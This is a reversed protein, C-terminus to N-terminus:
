GEIRSKGDRRVYLGHSRLDRILSPPGRFENLLRVAIAKRHAAVPKRDLRTIRLYFFDYALQADSLPISVQWRRFPLYSAVLSKTDVDIRQPTLSWGVFLFPVFVLLFQAQGTTSTLIALSAVIAPFLFGAIPDRYTLVTTRDDQASRPHGVVSRDGESV